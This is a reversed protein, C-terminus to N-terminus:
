VIKFISSTDFNIITNKHINDLFFGTKEDDNDDNDDDDNDNDKGYNYYEERKELLNSIAKNSLFYFSKDCYKKNGNNLIKGGYQYKDNAILM